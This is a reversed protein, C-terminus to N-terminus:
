RGGIGSLMARQRATMLKPDKINKLESDIKELKGHDGSEVANLWKEEEDYDTDSDINEQDSDNDENSIEIDVNENLNKMAHGASVSSSKHKSTKKRDSSKKKDNSADFIARGKKRDSTDKSSLDRTSSSSKSASDSSTSTKKTGLCIKLKIPPSALPSKM